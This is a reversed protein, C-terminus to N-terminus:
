LADFFSASNAAHSNMFFSFGDKSRQVILGSMIM